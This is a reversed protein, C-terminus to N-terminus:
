LIKIMTMWGLRWGGIVLGVGLRKQSAKWFWIVM